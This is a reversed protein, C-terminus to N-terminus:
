FYVFDKKERLEPFKEMCKTAVERDFGGCGQYRCPIIINVCFRKEGTNCQPCSWCYDPCRAGFCLRCPDNPYEM